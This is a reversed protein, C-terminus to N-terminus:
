KNLISLIFQYIMANALIIILFNHVKFREQLYYTNIILLIVIILDQNSNINKSTLKVALEIILAALVPTFYFGLAHVFNNFRKSSILKASIYIFIITPLVFLLIPLILGSIGLLDYDILTLIKVSTAGPLMETIATYINFQAESILHSQEVYYNYVYNLFVTGSGFGFTSILFNYYCAKFFIMM